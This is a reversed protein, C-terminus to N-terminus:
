QNNQRSPLDLKPYLLTSTDIHTSEDMEKQLDILKQRM